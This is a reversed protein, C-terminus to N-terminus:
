AFLHLAAKVVTGAQRPVAELIVAAHEQARQLHASASGPQLLEAIMVIDLGGGVHVLEVDNGLQTALGQADLDAGDADDLAPPLPSCGAQTEREGFGGLARSVYVSFVISISFSTARQRRRPKM